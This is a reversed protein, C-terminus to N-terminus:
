SEFTPSQVYTLNGACRCLGLRAYTRCGTSDGRTGRLDRHVRDDATSHLHRLASRELRARERARDRGARTEDGIAARETRRTVARMSPVSARVTTAAAAPPVADTSEPPLNALPAM